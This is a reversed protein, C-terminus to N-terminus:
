AFVEDFIQKAVSSSGINLPISIKSMLKGMNQSADMISDGSSTSTISSFNEQKIDFVFENEDNRFSRLRRRSQKEEPTAVSPDLISDISENKPTKPSEQKQNNFIDM